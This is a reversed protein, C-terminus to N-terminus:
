SGDRASHQTHPCHLGPLRVGGGQRGLEEAEEVEVSGRKDGQDSRLGFLWGTGGGSFAFSLCYAFLSGNLCGEM